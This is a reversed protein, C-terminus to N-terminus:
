KGSKRTSRKRGPGHSEGPKGSQGGQGSHGSHGSHGRPQTRPPTEGAPRRSAQARQAPQPRRTSAPPRKPATAAEPAPSDESAPEVPEVGSASTQVSEPTSVDARTEIGTPASVATDPTQVVEALGAVDGPGALEADSKGATDATVRRPRPRSAAVDRAPQGTATTRGASSEDADAINPAIDADAQSGASAPRETTDEPRTTGAEPIIDDPATSTASSGSEPAPGPTDLTVTPEEITAIGATDVTAPGEQGADSVGPTVSGPTGILAEGEDPENRATDPTTDSSEPMTAEDASQALPQTDGANDMVIGGRSEAVLGTSESASTEEAAGSMATPTATEAGSTLTTQKQATEAPGGTSPPYLLASEDLVHRSAPTALWREVSAVFAEPQDEFVVDAAGPIVDLDAHPNLVAVDEMDVRPHARDREGSIILVPPELLAFANPIALDLDGTIAALLAHQGGFQHASAYLQDVQEDSPVGEGARLSRNSAVWRLAPRTSLLAYPVIGLSARRTARVLTQTVTPERTIGAMVDPAVLILRGFVDPSDSAARVAVNAALGHAIVTAPRSVVDRLFGTLVSAYFEGTYAVAPHESMGFGLWDPAYVAHREALAPFVRRFEFNSAGPYFDHLLVLPESDDPGAVTYYIDGGHRRDIHGDGPLASELPQPTDLLHRVTIVMAGGAVGLSIWTVGRRLTRFLGM